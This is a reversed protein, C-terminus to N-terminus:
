IYLDGFYQASLQDESFYGEELTGKLVKPPVQGPDEIKKGLTITAHSFVRGLNSLGKETYNRIEGGLYDATPGLLKEIVKASGVAGGLITLGTAPEM